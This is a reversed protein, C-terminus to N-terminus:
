RVSTRSLHGTGNVRRFHMAEVVAQAESRTPCWDLEQGERWISWGSPMRHLEYGTREGTDDILHYVSARLKV